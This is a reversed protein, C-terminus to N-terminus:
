LTTTTPWRSTRLVESRSGTSPACQSKPFTGSRLRSRVCLWTGLRWDLTLGRGRSGQTLPERLPYTLSRRKCTNLRIATWRSLQARANKVVRLACRQAGCRMCCCSLFLLLQVCGFFLRTHLKSLESVRLQTPHSDSPRRLVRSTLVQALPVVTALGCWSTCATM